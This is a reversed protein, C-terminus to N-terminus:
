FYKVLSPYLQKVVDITSENRYVDLVKFKKYENILEDDTPQKSYMLEILANIDNQQKGWDYLMWKQKIKDKEEVPLMYISMHPPYHIINIWFDFLPTNKQMWNHTEPLEIANIWSTTHTYMFGLNTYNKRIQHYKLLNIKVEEWNANKRLYEFTTGTGDISLGIGVAKFNEVIKIMLDENLITCNTSMNVLVNKSYGMNIMHTLVREWASSYFPEGGVIELRRVYPMWDDMTNLFESDTGGPQGHKLGYYRIGFKEWEEEPIDNVEKLWTTSHSPSCSRCKLNCSNNLIIQYDEPYEPVKSYDIVTGNNKLIEVYIQRKSKYGNDEDKWCTECGSPKEGALFEKRLNDMYESHFIDKVSDNQVYFFSGDEKVIYDKNICCPKVSGYPDNSFGVWPIPCIHSM